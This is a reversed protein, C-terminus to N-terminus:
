LLSWPRWAIAGSDYVRKASSRYMLGPGGVISVGFSESDRKAIDAVLWVDVVREQGDHAVLIDGVCLDRVTGDSM